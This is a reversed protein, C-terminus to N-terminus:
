GAQQTFQALHCCTRGCLFETAMVEAPVQCINASLSLLSCLLIFQKKEELTVKFMPNSAGGEKQSPFPTLYLMNELGVM